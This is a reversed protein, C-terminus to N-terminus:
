SVPPRGQLVRDLHVRSTSANEALIIGDLNHRARRFLHFIEPIKQGFAGPDIDRMDLARGDLVHDSVALRTQVVSPKGTM